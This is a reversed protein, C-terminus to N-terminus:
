EAFSSLHVIVRRPDICASISPFHALNNATNFKAAVIFVHDPNAVAKSQNVVVSIFNRMSMKMGVEMRRITIHPSQVDIADIHVQVSVRNSKDRSLGNVVNSLM